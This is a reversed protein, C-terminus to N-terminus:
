NHETIIEECLKSATHQRSFLTAPPLQIVASPLQISDCPLLVHQLPFPHLKLLFYSILLFTNISLCVSLCVCTGVICLILVVERFLPCGRNLPCWECIGFVHKQIESSFFWCNDYIISACVLQQMISLLHTQIAKKWTSM